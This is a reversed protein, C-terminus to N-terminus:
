SHLLALLCALLCAPLCALLCAINARVDRVARTRTDCVVRTRALVDSVCVHVYLKNNGILIGHKSAQKSAQDSAQKQKRHTYALLENTNNTFRVRDVPQLFLVSSNALASADCTLLEDAKYMCARNWKVLGIIQLYEYPKSDTSKTVGICKQVIGTQLLCADSDAMFFIFRM